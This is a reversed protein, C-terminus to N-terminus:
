PLVQFAVSAAGFAASCDQRAPCVVSGALQPTAAAAARAAAAADIPFNLFGGEDRPLAARHDRPWRSVLVLLRSPGPPGAVHFDLAGKPLKLTGGKAIQPAATLGNPYLLQLQGDSSHHFVYVWGEQLSRLTFVLKDRDMRLRTQDLTM